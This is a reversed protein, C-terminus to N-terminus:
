GRTRIIAVCGIAILGTGLLFVSPLPTATPPPRVGRRLTPPGDYTRRTPSDPNEPNDSTSTSDISVNRAPEVTAVDAVKGASGADGPPGAEPKRIALAPMGGAAAVAGLLGLPAFAALNRLDGRGDGAPCDCTGPVLAAASARPDGLRAPGSQAGAIAPIALMAVSTAVTIALRIM